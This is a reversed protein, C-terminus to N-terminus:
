DQGGSRVTGRVACVLREVSPLVYAELPASFPVPVDARTVRKVPAKLYGFCEEVLIAAVESAFGCTRNSDDFVVVRGTKAVSNFLISRDLPLLTRPDLVEVSIGEAELVRAAELAKLVLHGVAIVTVDTGVRKVEGCGLQITYPEEPVEGRIGAIVAPAFVMVPDDDRIAAAFLGKADYPSSPIVVKMGGHLVYPYPHDSHQGALGKRAGSCPIIFTVPVEVQGGLMHRFKQAQDILQDFAVFVFENIQYEVVPRMGSMAAGTAFGTFGAESIPADIVRDSGYQEYLGKTVGRIGQRVDEGIVFVNPDNQMEQNLAEALAQLYRIQRM